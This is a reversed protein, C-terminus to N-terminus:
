MGPLDPNDPSVYKMDGLCEISYNINPWLIRMVQGYPLEPEGCIHQDATEYAEALFIAILKYTIPVSSRTWLIIQKSGSKIDENFDTFNNADCEFDIAVKTGLRWM